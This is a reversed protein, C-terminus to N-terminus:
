GALVCFFLGFPAFVVVGVCLFLMTDTSGICMVGSATSLDFSMMKM